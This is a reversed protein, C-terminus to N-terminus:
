VGLRRLFVGRLARYAQIALPEAGLDFRVYVRGGIEPVGAEQPLDLDLVFVPDVARLGDRDAPDVAFPGGGATGLARSPLRATAAPVTRRITAPWVRDLSRSSRAEARRSRQEVLAVDSQSLAVRVSVLEPGVVYGILEGHRVFRGILDEPQLLVFSGEAPSRIVVDGVRERARALTAEATDIADLAIRAKARDTTQEAYYRVRLERVQAELVAVEAELSPERTMVLPAGPRVPAGPAALLRVVFGDTRARVEAGEGPLVVGQAQIRSPLPVGLAIGAAIALSAASLGVARTRRPALAPSGLVFAAHRVAPVVLQGGVTVVALLVGVVFFRSALFIAVAFLVALRYLFSAIAYAVLWRREGDSTSPDDLHELGFLHRQVLYGLYQRSRSDLNPIEIWDALVYYGDFRLLPNGNFLVTSAGSIWAVDYAISRVVGPQTALWVYVALAALFLEVAIGAAGVAVRRWKDPLASAASADVYPVPLVVLFLIGMEHVEGGWAKVALAHGLEHCLKVGPYVLWLLLLNRPDLLEHAADRTLESWHASAAFSAAVVVATWVAAAGRTFLPRTWAVCRDLVADPDLLPIPRSLPSLIRAWWEMRRQRDHRRILELTDPALDCQLLDAQHLLGLLRIVEDQTPADDGLEAGVAEWIEHTTRRGNMLAALRYAAPSLRHCRGSSGDQLVYWPQGRYLHRHFRAHARLRPELRAVRYWSPSLLEETRV